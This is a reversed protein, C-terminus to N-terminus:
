QSYVSLCICCPFKNLTYQNIFYYNTCIVNLIKFNGKQQRATIFLPYTRNAFDSAVTIRAPTDYAEYDQFYNCFMINVGGCHPGM